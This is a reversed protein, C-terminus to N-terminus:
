AQEKIWVDEIHAQTGWAQKLLVTFYYTISAESSLEAAFDM